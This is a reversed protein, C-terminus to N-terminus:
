SNRLNGEPNNLQYLNSFSFIMFNQNCINPQWSQVCAGATFLPHAAFAEVLFTFHSTSLIYPHNKTLHISGLVQLHYMQAGRESRKLAIALCHHYDLCYINLLFALIVSSAIVTSQQSTIAVSRHNKQTKSIQPM